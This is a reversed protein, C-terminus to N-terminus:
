CPCGDTQPRRLQTPSSARIRLKAPLSAHLLYARRREGIYEPVDFKKLRRSRKGRNIHEVIHYYLVIQAQGFAGCLRSIYPDNIPFLALKRRLDSSVTLKTENWFNQHDAFVKALVSLFGSKLQPAASVIEVGRVDFCEDIIEWFQTINDRLVTRGVRGMLEELGASMETYRSSTLGPELRHHFQAIAKLFMEGQILQGTKMQQDWSVRNALPFFPEFSLDKLMKIASNEAALNRVLVSSSVKARNANLLEFRKREWPETTDFHIMVGLKPQSGNKLVELAAARRQLGDIIYIPDHLLLNGEAQTISLGRMGLEIDPVGGSHTFGQMIGHVIRPQAGRHYNGVKLAALSAPDIVGRLIIHDNGWDALAAKTIKIPQQV